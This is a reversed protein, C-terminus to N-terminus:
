AVRQLLSIGIHHHNEAVILLFLKVVVVHRHKGDVVALTQRHHLM